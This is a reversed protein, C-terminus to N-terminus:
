VSHYQFLFNALFDETNITAKEEGALVEMKETQHLLTLTCSTQKCHWGFSNWPPRGQEGGGGGRGIAKSEASM